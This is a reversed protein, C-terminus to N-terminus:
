EGEEKSLWDLWTKRCIDHRHRWDGGCWCECGRWHDCHSCDIMQLYEDFLEEDSMQRIKDGNTM